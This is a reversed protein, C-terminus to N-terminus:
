VLICPPFVALDIDIQNAHNSNQWCVDQKQKDLNKFIWYQIIKGKKSLRLWNFDEMIDERFADRSIVSDM